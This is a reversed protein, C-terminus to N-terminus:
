HPTTASQTRRTRPRPGSRTPARVQNRRRVRRATTGRRRPAQHPFQRDLRAWPAPHPSGGALRDAGVRRYITTRQKGQADTHRTHLYMATDSTDGAVVERNATKVSSTWPLSRKGFQAHPPSATASISPSSAYPGPPSRADAQRPGKRDKNIDANPYYEGKRNPQISHAAAYEAFPGRCELKASFTVLWNLNDRMRRAIADWGHKDVRAAIADLQVRPAQLRGNWYKLEFLGAVRASQEFSLGAAARGLRDARAVDCQDTNQDDRLALDATLRKSSWRLDVLQVEQDHWLGMRLGRQDKLWDQDSNKNRSKKAAAKAVEHM